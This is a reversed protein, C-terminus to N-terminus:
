PPTVSPKSIRLAQLEGDLVAFTAGNSHVLLNVYHYSPDLPHPYSKISLGIPVAYILDDKINMGASVSIAGGSCVTDTGSTCLKLESSLLDTSDPGNRKLYGEGNIILIDDDNIQGIDLSYLVDWTQDATVTTVVPNETHYVLMGVASASSCSFALTVTAMLLGRM